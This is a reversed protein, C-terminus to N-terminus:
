VNVDGEVIDAEEFDVKNASEEILEQTQQYTDDMEVSAKRAMSDYNKPFKKTANNLMKRQIMSEPTDTWAGSMYKRAIECKLMDDVTECQRLAEYIEEKKANIEELEADTADYKTKPVDEGKRNKKTGLIGFTENLLNQRVHAFLNVKVSDREAILYEIKGNNLEVPYVVRVCKQSLGKEEWEPPEIEVGKRRPYRFEDGEKVIWYPYVNKVDVGFNRLIADNGAGEIGMEILYTYSKTDDHWVKRIQFYCERPYANSNLKLSACHEVISRLNSRDLNQISIEKNNKVLNYINTMADMACKRSYDDFDVQCSEYDRSVLGVMENTIQSLQSTFESKAVENAM